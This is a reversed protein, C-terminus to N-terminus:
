NEDELNIKEPTPDTVPTEKSFNNEVKKIKTWGRKQIGNIRKPKQDKHFGLQTMCAKLREHDGAKLQMATDFGLKKVIAETSLWNTPQMEEFLEDIVEDWYDTLRFQKNLGERNDEEEDILKYEFGSKYLANASAWIKDRDGMVEAVPIKDIQVLVIWFRRDGTPDHLIEMENSTAVLLCPRPHAQEKRAYPAPLFDDINSIFNNLTLIDKKKYVSEFEAWQLCWFKSIKMKEDKDSIDSGLQDSFFDDGFLVRFFRSKYIGERPSILIFVSDVQCGPQRARAVASVLLKKFYINHILDDTGFNAKPLGDM